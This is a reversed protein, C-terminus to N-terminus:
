PTSRPGGLPGRGGISERRGIHAETDCDMSLYVNDALWLFM